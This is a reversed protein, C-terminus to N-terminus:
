CEFIFRFFSFIKFCGVRMKGGVTLSPNSVSEGGEVGGGDRKECICWLGCVWIVAGLLLDVRSILTTDRLALGSIMAM